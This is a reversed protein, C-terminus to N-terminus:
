KSSPGCYTNVGDIKFIGIIEVGHSRLEECSKFEHTDGTHFLYSKM